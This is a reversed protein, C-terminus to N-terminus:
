DGVSMQSDDPTFLFSYMVDYKTDFPFLGVILTQWNILNGHFRPILNRAVFSSRPHMSRM